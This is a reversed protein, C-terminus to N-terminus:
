SLEMNNSSIFAFVDDILEISLSTKYEQPTNKLVFDIVSQREDIKGEQMRMSYLTMTQSILIATKERSTLTMIDYDVTEM